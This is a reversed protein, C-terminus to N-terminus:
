ALGYIRKLEAIGEEFPVEPSWGLLKRAKAIGALTRKPEVRQKIMVTPGGILRAVELVSYDHGGGINIVEGKGV